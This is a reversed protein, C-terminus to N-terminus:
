LSIQMGQKRYIDGCVVVWYELDFVGINQLKILYMSM